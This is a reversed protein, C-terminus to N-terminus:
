KKTIREMGGLYPRLVDPVVISGDEQQYNELIAVLTRGVALCSGNLTHAFEPKKDNNRYRIGARRAQFDWCNSISSIERYRNQAPLWVELDVCRRAGFGIDGTCLLMARYPLGLNELVKCSTKVMEEHAEKSKDSRVIQVMEVKNFQHLRILGRTDKGHSGAESRFCPTHAAYKFPLEDQSFLEFAKLNTVPVEATPILYWDKDELKLKFLEEEFKPLQGTGYLTSSNVILPPIIEEYGKDSLQDLMYNALAREMKALAAKYVVFRAGAILSAKDFDLMGLNVGLDVHDIPTFAFKKIEGWSNLERNDEDSKGDPIDDDVLNPITSIIEKQKELILDLQRNEDEIESKIMGVKKMLEDANKGDKKLVGVQKSLQKVEARADEVKRTLKKRDENLSLVSNIIAIDFNRRKLNNKVYEENEIFYKIDHM